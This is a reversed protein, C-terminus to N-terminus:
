ARRASNSPCAALSGGLWKAPVLEFDTVIEGMLLVLRLASILTAPIGNDKALKICAVDLPIEEDIKAPIRISFIGEQYDYDFGLMHQSPSYSFGFHGAFPIGKNELYHQEYWNMALKDDNLGKVPIGLKNRIELLSIKHLM